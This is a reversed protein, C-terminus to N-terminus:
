TLWSSLSMHLAALMDFEHVMRQFFAGAPKCFMHCLMSFCVESSM